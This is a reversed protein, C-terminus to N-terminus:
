AFFSFLIALCATRRGVLWRALWCALRWCGGQRLTKWASPCGALWCAMCVWGAACCYLVFCLAAFCPLALCPLALCPLALSPSALCPLEPLAFCLLALCPSALCVCCLLSFCRPGHCGREHCGGLIGEQTITKDKWAPYAALKGKPM